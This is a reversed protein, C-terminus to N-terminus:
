GFVTGTMVPNLPASKPWPDLGLMRQLQQRWEKQLAPWNTATIKTQWEPFSLERVRREFYRDFPPPLFERREKPRSQALLTQQWSCGLFVVLHAVPFFRRSM